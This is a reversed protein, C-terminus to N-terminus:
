EARGYYEEFRNDAENAELSYKLAAKGMCVDLALSNAIVEMGLKLEKVFRKKEGLDDEHEWLKLIEKFESQLAETQLMLRKANNFFDFLQVKEREVREVKMEEM